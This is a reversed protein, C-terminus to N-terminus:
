RDIQRLKKASGQRQKKKTNGIGGCRPLPTQKEIESRVEKRFKADRHSITDSLTILVSPAGANGCTFSM